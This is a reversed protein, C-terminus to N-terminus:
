PATRAGETARLALGIRWLSPIVVAAALLLISIVIMPIGMTHCARNVPHQHSRAYEAIWEEMSRQGLRM